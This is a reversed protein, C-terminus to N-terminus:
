DNERARRRLWDLTLNDTWRTVSHPPPMRYPTALPNSSLSKMTLKDATKKGLVIEGIEAHMDSQKILGANITKIIDGAEDM